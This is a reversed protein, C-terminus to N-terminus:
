VHYLMSTKVKETIEENKLVSLIEFAFYASTGPGRSTIFRGDHVVRETKLHAGKLYDEYGPYCTANKGKLYGRKGLVLPAACVAAVLIEKKVAFDLLKGVEHSEDLHTAGPMGGPLIVADFGDAYDLDKILLEATM